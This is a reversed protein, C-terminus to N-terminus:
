EDRKRTIPSYTDPRRDRLMDDRWVHEGSRTFDHAIRPADLDVRALAIGVERGADALIMGDPAIISSRGILMGPRWAAGSAVGFCVPVHYIGNHIAPARALVDMFEDGWGSMTHAWFVIEAGGLALCRASEPFSNDHCIQIGVRGFDLPFTAWEGGPVIGLAREMETCHVKCFVGDLAGSRNLLLAANRPTGDLLVAAPV